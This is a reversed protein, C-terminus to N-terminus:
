AGTTFFTRGYLGRQEIWRAVPLPGGWAEAPAFFTMFITMNSSPPQVGELERLIMESPLEGLEIFAHLEDQLEEPVLNWDAAEYRAITQETSLM